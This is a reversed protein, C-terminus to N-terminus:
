KSQQNDSDDAEHVKYDVYWRTAHYINFAASASTTISLVFVFFSFAAFCDRAARVPLSAYVADPIATAAHLTSLPHVHGIIALLLALIQILVFQLFIASVKLLLSDHFPDVTKRQSQRVALFARFKDDGFALLLAYAALAFGLLNPLVQLPLESWDKAHWFTGSLIAVVLALHTFPSCLLAGWSGSRRFYDFVDHFVYEYEEHVSGIFRSM